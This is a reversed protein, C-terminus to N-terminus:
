RWQIKFACFLPTSSYQAYKHPNIHKAQPKCDDYDIITFGNNIILKIIHEYTKHYSKVQYQKAEDSIWSVTVYKKTFYDQVIRYKKNDIYKKETAEMVPNGTSFVIIGKKKLVRKMDTFMANWDKIYHVVLSAVIIDFKETFPITKGNGVRIDLTPHAQQAYQVMKKSIDFAKVTADAQLLDKILSGVGCGYDLVKKNHINGLLRLVAPKEIYENHYKNNKRMTYYSSAFANYLQKTHM